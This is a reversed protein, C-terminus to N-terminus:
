ESLYLPDACEGQQLAAIFIAQADGSTVEGDGSCDAACWQEGSPAMTGLTIMFAFQADEATLQADINVDGDNICPTQSAVPSLGVYVPCDMSNITIETEYYDSRYIVIDMDFSYNAYVLNAWGDPGTTWSAYPCLSSVPEILADDIPVSYGAPGDYVYIGCMVMIDCFTSQPLPPPAPTSEAAPGSGLVSPLFLLIIFLLTACRIM